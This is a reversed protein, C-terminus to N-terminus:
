TRTMRISSPRFRRPMRRTANGAGVAGQQFQALQKVVPRIRSAVEAARDDGPILQVAEKANSGALGDLRALLKTMRDAVSAPGHLLIRDADVDLELGFMKPGREGTEADEPGYVDFGPLGTPGADTIEKRSDFAKLLQKSLDLASRNMPEFTRTVVVTSAPIASVPSEAAGIARQAGPQADGEQEYNM